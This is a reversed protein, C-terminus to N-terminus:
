IPLTALLIFLCSQQFEAVPKKILFDKHNALIDRVFAQGFSGTGGTILISKDNLNLM